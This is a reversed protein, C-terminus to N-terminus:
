VSSRRVSPSVWKAFAATHIAELMAKPLSISASGPTLTLLGRCMCIYIYFPLICVTSYNSNWHFCFCSLYAAMCPVHTRSVSSTNACPFALLARLITGLALHDRAVSGKNELEISGYESLLRAWWSENKDAASEEDHEAGPEHTRGSRRISATSPNSRLTKAPRQQTSQYNMNRNSSRRVIHTEEDASSETEATANTGTSERLMNTRPSPPSTGSDSSSDMALKRARAGQLIDDVRGKPPQIAPAPAPAPSDRLKAPDPQAPETGSPSAM